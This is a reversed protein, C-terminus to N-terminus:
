RRTPPGPLQRPGRSAAVDQQHILTRDDRRGRVGAAKGVLEPRMWAGRALLWVLVTLGGLGCYAWAAWRWVRPGLALWQDAFLVLWLAGLFLCVLDSFIRAPAPRRERGLSLLAWGVLLGAAAGAAEAEVVALYDGGRVSALRGAVVAPLYVAAAVVLVIRALLKM